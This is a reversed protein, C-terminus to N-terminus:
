PVAESFAAEGHEVATPVTQAMGGGPRAADTVDDASGEYEGM